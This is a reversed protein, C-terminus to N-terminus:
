SVILNVLTKSKIDILGWENIRLYPFITGPLTQLTLFPNALASGMSRITEKVAELKSVIEKLPLSSLYGSIPLPLEVLSKQNQCIVLGGHLEIIRNIAWAMDAEDAGVVVLPSKSEWSYSSAFAGSKLGFGKIFGTFIRGTNDLREIVSLKLIDREVILPLTGNIAPLVEQAEQTIVPSVVEIVRVKVEGTTVPSKISFDQAELHRPLRISNLAAPPYSVKRPSLLLHGEKAALKGRSIVLQPKITRLDPLIIIDAEKGPAIGGIKKDLQFHEAVNLTAMQIAKIPNIGLDIAKQVIYEMYGLTLLDYADVGDSVLILRRYDIDLDKIQSLAELDRRISGERIMVHIGLRLRELLENVKIPEHCSSIGSAVYAVLKNGKAGASHGELEKNYKHTTALMDMVYPDEDTVFPWITEGLGVIDPCAIIKELEEQSILPRAEITPLSPMLSPALAFFKMPHGKIIDLFSIVGEYGLINAIDTTEVVASTTGGPIAYRIFEEVTGLTCDLHMHGDIFGPAIVQEKLEIVETNDGITHNGDPGVYAIREGKIAVWYDKLLEGSYVNVLMGGKIVLDARQQGLAVRILERVM